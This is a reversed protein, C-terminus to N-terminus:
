LDDPVCVNDRHVLRWRDVFRFRQRDRYQSTTMSPGVDPHVRVWLADEALDGGILRPQLLTAGVQLSRRAIIDLGRRALGAEVEVSHECDNQVVVLQCTWGVVTAVLLLFIAVTRFIGM